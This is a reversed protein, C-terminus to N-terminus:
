AGKAAVSEQSELYAAAKRIQEPNERFHGLGANCHHCLLGRVAGTRHDHDIHYFGGKAGPGCPPGACIACRGGQEALIRVYDDASVGYNRMLASWRFSERNQQYYAQHHARLRDRHLEQYNRHQERLRERNDEYYRRHCAKCYTQLGDRSRRARSFGSSPKDEGCGSCRKVSAFETM